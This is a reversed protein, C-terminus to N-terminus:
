RRFAARVRLLPWTRVKIKTVADRKGLKKLAARIDAPLSADVEDGMGAVGARTDARRSHQSWSSAPVYGLGQLAEFGVFGGGQGKSLREIAADSSAQVACSCRACVENERETARRGHLANALQLRPKRM